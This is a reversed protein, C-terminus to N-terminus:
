PYRCSCSGTEASVQVMGRYGGPGGSRCSALRGNSCPDFRKPWEGSFTSLLKDLRRQLRRKGDELALYLVDGEVAKLTGLAPHGAACALCLDLVWWSKGVKPRGVLLTMGEPIFRPLVYRVPEFTMTKLEAATFTNEHWIAPTTLPAADKGSQAAHREDNLETNIPHLEVERKRVEAKAISAVTARVKEEPLPPTNHCNWALCAEVAERESMRWPGLCWGARTTLEHTRHGDPYGQTMDPPSRMGATLEVALSRQENALSIALKEATALAAQFDANAYSSAERASAIKVMSPACGDKQHPFGPLRMVRPLDKVKPDSGLVAALRAQTASFEGLPAGVVFWYVHWKGPSSEVILHPTLGLRKLNSVVTEPEASDFDAFHARVEVVNENTRGVLNTRNITM